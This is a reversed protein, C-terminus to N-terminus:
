DSGTAYGIGGGILTSTGVVPLAVAAAVYTWPIFADTANLDAYAAAALLSVGIVTGVLAGAGAGKRASAWRTRMEFSDAVALPTSAHPRGVVQLVGAEDHDLYVGVAQPAEPAGQAFAPTVVLTLAFFLCSRIMVM